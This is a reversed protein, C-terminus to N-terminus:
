TRPPTAVPAIPQATWGQAQFKSRAQEVNAGKLLRQYEALWSVAQRPDDAMAGFNRNYGAMFVMSIAWFLDPMETAIYTTPNTASLPDPRCVGYGFLPYGIDPAPGILVQQGPQWALTPPGGVTLANGELIFYKPPGTPAGAVVGTVIPSGDETLIPNGNDDLLFTPSSPYVTNIFDRSTPVLPGYLSSMSELIIVTTPISYTQIGVTTNGLNIQGKAVLLDLDRLISLEAYDICDPLVTAFNPDAPLSPIQTVLAQQYSAYTFGIPM